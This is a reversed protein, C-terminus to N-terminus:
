SAALSFPWSIPRHTNRAALRNIKGQWLSEIDDHSDLERGAEEQEL